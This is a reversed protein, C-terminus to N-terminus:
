QQLVEPLPEVTVQQIKAIEDTSASANDLTQVFPSFDSTVSYSLSAREDGNIFARVTEGDYSLSLDFETTTDVRPVIGDASLSGGNMTILQENDDGSLRFFFGNGNLVVSDTIPIDTVGVRFANGSDVDSYRVGEFTMKFGGLSSETTLTQSLAGGRNGSNSSDHEVRLQRPTGTLVTSFNAGTADSTWSPVDVFSDYEFSLNANLRAFRGLAADLQHNFAGGQGDLTRRLIVAPDLGSQQLTLISETGQDASADVPAEQFIARDANLSASQPGTAIEGSPQVDNGLETVGKKTDSVYEGIRRKVTQGRFFMTSSINPNRTRYAVGTIDSAFQITESVIRSGSPSTLEIELLGSDTITIQYDVWSGVFPSLNANSTVTNDSTTLRLADSSVLFRIATFVDETLIRVEPQDAGDTYYVAGNVTDGFQPYATLGDTSQIAADNGAAPNTGSLVFGKGTSNPDSVVQFQATDGSFVDTDLSGGEFDAVTLERVQPVRVEDHGLERILSETAVIGGDERLAIENESVGEQLALAGDAREYITGVVTGSSDLLRYRPENDAVM